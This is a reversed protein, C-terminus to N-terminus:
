TGEDPKVALIRSPPSMSTNPFYERCLTIVVRTYGWALGSTGPGRTGMHDNLMHKILGMHFQNSDYIKERKVLSEGAVVQVFGRGYHCNTPQYLNQLATVAREFHDWDIPNFVYNDVELRLPTPNRAFEVSGSTLGM